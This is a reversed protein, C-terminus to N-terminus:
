VCKVGSKSSSSHSQVPRSACKVRRSHQWVSAHSRQLALGRANHSNYDLVPARKVHIPESSPRWLPYVNSLTPNSTKALVISWKPMFLIKGISLCSYVQQWWTEREKRCYLMRRAPLWSKVLPFTPLKRYCTFASYFDTISLFAHVHNPCSSVMTNDPRPM